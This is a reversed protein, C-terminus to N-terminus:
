IPLPTQWAMPILTEGVLTPTCTTVSCTPQVKIPRAQCVGRGIYLQTEGVRNVVVLRCCLHRAERYEGGETKAVWAGFLGLLDHSREVGMRDDISVIFLSNVQNSHTASALHESENSEVDVVDDANVVVRVVRISETSDRAQVRHSLDGVSSSLQHINQISGVSIDHEAFIV